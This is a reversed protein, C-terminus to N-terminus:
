RGKRDIKKLRSVIKQKKESEGCAARFREILSAEMRALKSRTAAPVGAAPAGVEAGDPEQLGLHMRLVGAELSAVGDLADRLKEKLRAKTAVTATRTKSGM